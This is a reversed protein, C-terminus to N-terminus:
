VGVGGCKRSQTWWSGWLCPLPSGTATGGLLCGPLSACYSREITDLLDPEIVRMHGAAVPFAEDGGGERRARGLQKHLLARQEAIRAVVVAVARTGDPGVQM